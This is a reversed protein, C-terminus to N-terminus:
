CPARSPCPVGDSLSKSAVPPPLKKYVTEWTVNGNNDVGTAIKYLENSACGSLAFAVFTTAIIKYMRKKAMVKLPMIM